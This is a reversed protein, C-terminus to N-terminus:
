GKGLRRGVFWTKDTPEVPKFVMRKMKQRSVNAKKRM